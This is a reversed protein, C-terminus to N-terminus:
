LGALHFIQEAEEKLTLSLCLERGPLGVCFCCKVKGAQATVLRAMM